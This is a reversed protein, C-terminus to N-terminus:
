WSIRLFEDQSSNLERARRYTGRVCAFSAPALTGLPGLSASLSFGGGSRPGMMGHILPLKIPHFLSEISLFDRVLKPNINSLMTTLFEIRNVASGPGFSGRFFYISIFFYLFILHRHSAFHLSDFLLSFSLLSTFLLSYYDSFYSLLDLLSSFILIASLNLLSSIIFPPFHLRSLDCLFCFPFILYSVFVTM